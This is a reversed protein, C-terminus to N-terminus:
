QVGRGSRSRIARASDSDGPPCSEPIVRLAMKLDRAVDAIALHKGLATVSHRNTGKPDWVTVRWGRAPMRDVSVAAGTGYLEIARSELRDLATM